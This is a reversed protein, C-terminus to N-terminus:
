RDTEELGLEEQQAHPILWFSVQFGSKGSRGRRAQVNTQAVTYGMAALTGQVRQAFTQASSYSVTWGVVQIHGIEPLNHIADLVVDDSIDSALTRLLRPLRDAMNEIARLRDLEPTLKVIERRAAELAAQTRKVEQVVQAEQQRGGTQKRSDFERQDIRGQLTKIDMRQRIDMGVAVTLAALPFLVHWFGTRRWWPRPPLGRRIIPLRQDRQRYQSAMFELLGRRTTAADRLLPPKSWRQAFDGALGALAAEDRADLCVIELDHNGSGRWDAVLRLLWDARLEREMRGEGRASVVRGRHRLVAVVDEGHIELAVRSAGEHEGDDRENADAGENVSESVSWALPLAGLLKLRRRRCVAECQSWTALGTASALWIPQEGLEGARGTWGVALNSELTQLKEQLRLSEQLDEQEVLGLERAVQGFYTPAHSAHGRRAALEQTVQHRAQPSILGRAALVAGISWLAGSEAVATEMEARTMERMHLFPRPKEPDVPLDVRAPTIVRTALFCPRPPKIGAQRLGALAEDLAHAFDAATSLAPESFRWSKGRRWACTASLRGVDWVLLLLAPSLAQGAAQLFARLSAAGVSPPEDTPPAPPNAADRNRVPLRILRALAM